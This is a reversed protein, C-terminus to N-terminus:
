HQHAHPAADTADGADMANAPRAIFRADRTSGDAFTLTIRVTDGPRVPQTPESLMLHYGGPSLAAAGHAPIRLAHTMQMRSVGGTTTSQHLMVQRYVSSRAGTLDAPQASANDLTAYGGAPLAGPLIRLWAQRVQVQAAQTAPPAAHGTSVLALALCCASLTLLKM